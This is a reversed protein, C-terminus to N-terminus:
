ILTFAQKHADELKLIALPLVSVFTLGAFRKPCEDLFTVWNKLDAGKICRICSWLEACWRFSSSSAPMKIELIPPFLYSSPYCFPKSAVVKLFLFFSEGRSVEFNHSKAALSYISWLYSAYLSCNTQSFCFWFAWSSYSCSKALGLVWIVIYFLCCFSVLSLWSVFILSSSVASENPGKLRFSLLAYM